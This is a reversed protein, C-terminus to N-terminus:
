TKPRKHVQSDTTQDLSQGVLILWKSLMESRWENDCQLVQLDERQQRRQEQAERGYQAAGFRQSSGSYPSKLKRLLLCGQTRANTIDSQTLDTFTRPSPDGSRWECYTLQQQRVQAIDNAQLETKNKVAPPLIGLLSLCTPFYMEDSASVGRFSQLLPRGLAQENSLELVQKAHKRSLLLWQDAKAICQGPIRGKLIDFQKQKAYGNTPEYGYRLWSSVDPHGSETSNSNPLTYNLIARQFEQFPVVPICSDSCFCLADITDDADLAEHLLRIMVDTLEVSGWTPQLHFTKALRSRVWPSTIAGLEKGHILFKVSSESSDSHFDGADIDVGRAWERWITEHPVDDVVIMLMAIRLGRPVVSTPMSAM